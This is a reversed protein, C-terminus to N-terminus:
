ALLIEVEETFFASLSYGAHQAMQPVLRAESLGPTTNVEILYLGDDCLMYDARVIGKCSLWGYIKETLRMCREYDEADIRAPTIEETGKDHYKAEYDFFEKTTVIETVALAKPKGDRSVVGCTIEIGPLFEEIVVLDDEQFAAEIASHLQEAENVRSIGLSSGSANPKVFCPLGVKRLVEDLSYEEGRSLLYSEASKVGFHRLLRNCAGKNFSISSAYVGCNNYPIKLLDFYGQLLGNEGPTGHITNFVGDFELRQGDVEVSFDNKDIPYSAEGRRLEWGRDDIWVKHPSYPSGKLSAIVVDASQNSIVKEDSYGGCVIAINKVAM